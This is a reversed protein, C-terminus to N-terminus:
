SEFVSYRSCPFWHESVWLLFLLPCAQIIFIMFSFVCECRTSLAWLSFDQASPSAPDESPSWTWVQLPFEQCTTAAYGSPMHPSSLLQLLVCCGNACRRPPSQRWLHNPGLTRGSGPSWHTRWCWGAYFGQKYSWSKSYTPPHITVVLLACSGEPWSINSGYVRTLM